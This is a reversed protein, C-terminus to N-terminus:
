ERSDEESTPVAPGTVVVPCYTLSHGDARLIFLYRGPLELRFQPVPIVLTVVGLPDAPVPLNTEFKIVPENNDARELSLAFKQDRMVESIRVYAAFPGVMAPFAPVNISGIVGYLNHKGSAVTMAADECLIICSCVAGDSVKPNAM